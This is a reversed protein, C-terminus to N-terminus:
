PLHRGSSVNVLLHNVYGMTVGMDSVLDLGNNTGLECSIL